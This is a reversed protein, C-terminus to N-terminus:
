IVYIHFSGAVKLSLSGRKEPILAMIDELLLKM